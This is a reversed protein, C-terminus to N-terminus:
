KRVLVFNPDGKPISRKRMVVTYVPTSPRLHAFLRIQIAIYGVGCLSFAVPYIQHLGSNDGPEPAIIPIPGNPPTGGVLYPVNIDDGLIFPNLTDDSASLGVQSVDYGHAIKALTRLFPDLKFFVTALAGAHGKEILKQQRIAGDGTTDWCAFGITEVKNQPPLDLLIGPPSLLPFVVLGPAEDVPVDRM